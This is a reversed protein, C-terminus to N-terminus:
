TRATTLRKSSGRTEKLSTLFPGIRKQAFHVMRPFEVPVTWIVANFGAAPMAAVVHSYAVVLRGTGQLEERLYSCTFRLTTADFRHNVVWGVVEGAHRLGVSTEPEFRPGYHFPFVEINPWGTERQRRVLEQAESEQLDRWPFIETAADLPRLHVRAFAQTLGEPTSRMVWTRRVPPNWDRKALVREFAAIGDGGATYVTRLEAWGNERAAAEASELLASAFGEGRRDPQVYLSRLTPGLGPVDEVLALGIPRDNELAGCAIPGGPDGARLVLRRYAPFTMPAFLRATLRNLTAIECDVAM